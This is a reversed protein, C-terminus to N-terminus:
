TIVGLQLWSLRLEVKFMAIPQLQPQPQPQPQPQM